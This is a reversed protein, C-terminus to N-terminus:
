NIINREVALYLSDASSLYAISGDHLVILLYNRNDFYDAEISKITKNQLFNFQDDLTNTPKFNM